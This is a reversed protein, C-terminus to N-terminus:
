SAPFLRSVISFNNLLPFNDLFYQSIISFSNLFSFYNLLKKSIKLFLQLFLGSRAVTVQLAATTVALEYLEIPKSQSTIVLAHWQLTM